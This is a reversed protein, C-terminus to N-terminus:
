DPSVMAPLTSDGALPRGIPGATPDAAQDAAVEVLRCFANVLRMQEATRCAVTLLDPSSVVIALGRARSVAVNLRNGSYLFEMDRPLEDPSSTATSFISVPAEQGQFKDVTGVRLRRGIRREIAGHIEAVHANYPAVIVVDEGTLPRTVGHKDTWPRGILGGVLEAVAEAELTSRSADGPHTVPRYRIGTGAGGIAQIANPPDTVLRGEYFLESVFDNVRPHMRYSVPLFLGREPPLTLDSGLVHELASAGAGDPHVGQSVQPLQNPDGLLVIARAATAGAVANALSQQGAEDVFLIDLTQDLEPRAFLWSTGAVVDVTGAALAAAIEANTAETM